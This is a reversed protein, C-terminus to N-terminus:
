LHAMTCYILWLAISPGYNQLCAVTGCIPWPAHCASIFDVETLMDVLM